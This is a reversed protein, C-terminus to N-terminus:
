YTVPNELIRIKFFFNTIHLVVYRNGIALVKQVPDFAAATPKFPFGHLSTKELRFYDPVLAEIIESELRAPIGSCIKRLEGTEILFFSFFIKLFFLIFYFYYRVMLIALVLYPLLGPHPQFYYWSFFVFICFGLFFM